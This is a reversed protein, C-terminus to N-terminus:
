KVENYTNIRLPSHYSNVYNYEQNFNLQLTSLLNQMSCLDVVFGSRTRIDVLFHLRNRRVGRRDVREGGEAYM